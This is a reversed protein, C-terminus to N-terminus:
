GRKARLRQGRSLPRGRPVLGDGPVGPFVGRVIACGSSRIDARTADSVRGESIDRYDIEPITPRGAANDTRLKDAARSVADKAEGYARKLVDRLPAMKKKFAVIQDGVDFEATETNMTDTGGLSLPASDRQRYRRRTATGTPAM